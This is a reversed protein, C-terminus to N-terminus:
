LLLPLVLDHQASHIFIPGVENRRERPHRADLAVLKEAINGFVVEASRFGTSTRVVWRRPETKFRQWRVRIM